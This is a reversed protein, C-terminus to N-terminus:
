AVLPGDMNHVKACDGPFDLRKADTKKSPKFPIIGDNAFIPVSPHQGGAEWLHCPWPVSSYTGM